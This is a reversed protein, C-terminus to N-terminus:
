RNGLSTIISPFHFPLLYNRIQSNLVFDHVKWPKEKKEQIPHLNNTKKSEENQQNLDYQKYNHKRWIPVRLPKDSVLWGQVVHLMRYIQSLHLSSTLKKYALDVYNM